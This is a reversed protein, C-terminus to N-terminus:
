IFEPISLFGLTHQNKKQFSSISLNPKTLELNQLPKVIVM